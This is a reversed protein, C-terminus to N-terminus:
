RRARLGVLPVPQRNSSAGSHSSLGGIGGGPPGARGGSLRGSRAPREAVTSYGTAAVFEAFQSVTVPERDISFADVHIERVPGEEPYFGASGMHCSGSAIQVMDDNM